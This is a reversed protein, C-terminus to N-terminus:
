LGLILLSCGGYLAGTIGSIRLKLHITVGYDQRAKVIFGHRHRGGLAWQSFRAYSDEGALLPSFAVMLPFAVEKTSLQRKLGIM